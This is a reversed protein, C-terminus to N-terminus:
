LSEAVDTTGEECTGILTKGLMVEQLPLPVDPLPRIELQSFRQLGVTIAWPEMRGRVRYAELDRTGVEAKFFALSVFPLPQLAVLSEFRELTGNGHPFRVDLRLTL